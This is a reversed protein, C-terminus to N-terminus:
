KSGTDRGKETDSVKFTESGMERDTVRGKERRTEDVMDRDM